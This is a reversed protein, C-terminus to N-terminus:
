IVLKAKEKITRMRARAQKDTFKEEILLDYCEGYATKRANLSSSYGDERCIAEREMLKDVLDQDTLKM